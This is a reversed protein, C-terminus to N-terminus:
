SRGHEFSRLTGRISIRSSRLSAQKTHPYLLNWWRSLIEPVTEKCLAAFSYGQAFLRQFIRHQLRPGKTYNDWITASRRCKQLYTFFHQLVWRTHLAPTRFALRDDFTNDSLGLKGSERQAMGDRGFHNCTHFTFIFFRQLCIRAFNISEFYCQTRMFKRCKCIQMKRKKKSKRRMKIKDKDRKEDGDRKEDKDSM